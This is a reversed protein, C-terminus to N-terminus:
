FLGDDFSSSSSSILSITSLEPEVDLEEIVLLSSSLWTLLLLLLTLNCDCYSRVTGNILFM